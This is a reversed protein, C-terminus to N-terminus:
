YFRDGQYGLLGGYFERAKAIDSTYIAIHAVGLIKPRSVPRQAPSSPFLLPAALLLALLTKM